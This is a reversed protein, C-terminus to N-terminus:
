VGHYIFYPPNVVCESETNFSSLPSAMSLGLDNMTIIVVDYTTSPRLGVVVRSLETGKVSFIMSIQSLRVTVILLYTTM